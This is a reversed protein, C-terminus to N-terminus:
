GTKFYKCKQIFSNDLFSLELIKRKIEKPCDTEINEEIDQIQLKLITAAAQLANRKNNWYIIATVCVTITMIITQLFNSELFNQEM